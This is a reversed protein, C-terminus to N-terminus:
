VQFNTRINPLYDILNALNEWHWEFTRWHVFKNINIKILSKMLNLPVNYDILGKYALLFTDQM